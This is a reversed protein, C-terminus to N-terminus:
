CILPKTVPINKALLKSLWAHYRQSDRITTNITYSKPYIYSLPITLYLYSPTTSWLALFIQHTIASLRHFHSSGLTTRRSSLLLSSFDVDHLYWWSIKWFTLDWCVHISELSHVRNSTGNTELSRFAGFIDPFVQVSDNIVISLSPILVHTTDKNDINSNYHVKVHCIPTLDSILYGLYYLGPLTNFLTNIYDLVYFTPCFKPHYTHHVYLNPYLILNLGPIHLHLDYPKHSHAHYIPLSLRYSPAYMTESIPRFFPTFILYIIPYLSPVM